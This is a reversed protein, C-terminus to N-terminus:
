HPSYFVNKFTLSPLNKRESLHVIQSIGKVMHPSLYIYINMLARGKKLLYSKCFRKNTMDTSIFLHTTLYGWSILIDM